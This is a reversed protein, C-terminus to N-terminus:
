LEQKVSCDVGTTSTPTSWEKTFTLGQQGVVSAVIARAAALQYPRLPRGLGHRSFAGVDHALRRAAAVHAGPRRHDPM